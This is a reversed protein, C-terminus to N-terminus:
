LIDGPRLDVTEAQIGDPLQPRDYDIECLELFQDITEDRSLFRDKLRYIVFFNM